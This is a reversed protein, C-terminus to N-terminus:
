HIWRDLLIALSSLGLIVGCFLAMGPLTWFLVTWFFGVWMSACWVCSLVGPIFGDPIVTPIGDQDHEIGSLERLHVFIDFPGRENVLLNSVRWTALGLILLTPLNM